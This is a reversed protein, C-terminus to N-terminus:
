SQNKPTCDTITEVREIKAIRLKTQPYKQKYHWYMEEANKPCVHDFGDINLWEKKLRPSVGFEQVEYHTSM